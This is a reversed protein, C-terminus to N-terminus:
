AVRHGDISAWADAAHLSGCYTCELVPPWFGPSRHPELLGNCNECRM